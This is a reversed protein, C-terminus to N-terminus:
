TKQIVGLTNLVALFMRAESLKIMFGPWENPDLSLWSAHSANESDNLWTFFESSKIERPEYQDPMGADAIFQEAFTRNAFM